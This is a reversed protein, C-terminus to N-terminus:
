EGYVPTYDFIVGSKRCLFILTTKQLLLMMQYSAHGGMGEIQLQMGNKGMAVYIMRPNARPLLKLNVTLKKLYNM